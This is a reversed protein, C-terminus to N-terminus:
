ASDLKLHTQRRGGHGAAPRVGGHLADGEGQERAGGGGGRSQARAGGPRPLGAPGPPGAVDRPTDWRGAEGEPLGRTPAADAQPEKQCVAGSRGPPSSVSLARPECRSSLRRTATQQQPSLASTM